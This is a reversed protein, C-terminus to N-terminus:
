PNTKEVTDPAAAPAAAASDQETVAEDRRARPSQPDKLSLIEEITRDGPEKIKGSLVDRSLVANKPMGIDEKMGVPEALGVTVFIVIEKQLKDRGKWGFLRPGIWPLNRLLPIGSDVNGESTKTLGGIVATTGSAMTFKTEMRQMKIIPYRAVPQNADLGSPRYYSDLESISPIIDVTIMGSPSIRPTVKLTIGYSFFAEGVFPEIKGPIIGLKTSVSDRMGVQTAAQFDVEVNPEKTTMDVKATEENAVIIKPNSFISVGDIQEFANMALRFDDVSLQGGIGKATHWIMDNASRGANEADLIGEPTLITRVNEKQYIPTLKGDADPTLTSAYASASDEVTQAGTRFQNLKGENWEAGGKVETTGIGWGDKTGLSDWKMGLKKSASASMEMFRAEIYVQPRPKDISKLIEECEGVQQEPATIIVVNASAFATATGSKGLTTAFLKAVEDSKAHELEFTRTVKPIEVTKTGVVYIGSGAPQELLQLGQPDLISSLGKRWPVNDLRVSVNGQLNTGSSIINAGTADRFAKIVDSIPTEDFVMSVVAENSNAADVIRIAPVPAPQVAPVAAPQPAANTVAPQAQAAEQALTRLPSASQLAVVALMTVLPLTKM